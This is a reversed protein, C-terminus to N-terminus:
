ETDMEDIALEWRWGQAIHSKRKGTAARWIEGNWCKVARAASSISDYRHIVNYTYPEMQYVPRPPLGKRNKNNSSDM